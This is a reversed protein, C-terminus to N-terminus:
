LFFFRPNPFHGHLCKDSDSSKSKNPFDTKQVFFQMDLEKPAQLLSQINHSKHRPVLATAIYTKKQLEM